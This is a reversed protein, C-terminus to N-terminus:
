EHGDDKSDGQQIYLFFQYYRKGKEKLFLNIM